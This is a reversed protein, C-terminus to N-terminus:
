IKSKYLLKLSLVFNIPHYLSKGAGVVHMVEGMM